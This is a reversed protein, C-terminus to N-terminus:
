LSAAKRRAIRASSTMRFSEAKFEPDEYRSVLGKEVLRLLSPEAKGKRRMLTPFTGRDVGFHTVLARVDSPEINNMCRLKGHRGATHKATVAGLDRTYPDMDMTRVM